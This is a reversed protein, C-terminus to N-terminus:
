QDAVMDRLDEVVSRIVESNFHGRLLTQRLHNERCGVHPFDFTTRSITHHPINIDDQEAESCRCSFLTIWWHVVGILTHCEWFNIVQKKKWPYIWHDRTYPFIEEPEPIETLKTSAIQALSPVYLFKPRIIFVEEEEWTHIYRRIEANKEVDHPLKQLQITLYNCSRYARKRRQFECICFSLRGPKLNIGKYPSYDGTVTVFIEENTINIFHLKLTSDLVKM